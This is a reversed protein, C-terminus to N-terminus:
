AQHSTSKKVIFSLYQSVPKQRHLERAGTAADKAGGVALAHFVNAAYFGCCDRVINYLVRGCSGYQM